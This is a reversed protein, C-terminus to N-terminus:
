SFVGTSFNLIAYAVGIRFLNAVNGGTYDGLDNWAVFKFPLNESLSCVTRDAYAAVLTAADPILGIPFLMWRTTSGTFPMFCFADADWDGYAITLGQQSGTTVNTYAGGSTDIHVSAWLPVLTKGSGPASVLTQYTTPLAKFQTNTIASNFAWHIPIETAATVNLTTGSMTLSSGLSIEEVDGSGAASGRGLLRSAASVDQIKAYTVAADAIKGTTVALNNIKATTVANNAITAVVSGPGPGATVDGTLQTIATTVPGLNGNLSQFFNRWPVTLPGSKEAIDVNIPVYLPNAM